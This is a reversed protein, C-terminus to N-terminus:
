RYCAESIFQRFQISDIGLGLIWYFPPETQSRGLGTIYYLILWLAHLAQTHPVTPSGTLLRLVCVHLWRSDCRDCRVNTLLLLHPHQVPLWRNIDFAHLLNTTEGVLVIAKDGIKCFQSGRLYSAIWYIRSQTPHQMASQTQAILIYISLLALILAALSQISM